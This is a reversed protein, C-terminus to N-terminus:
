NGKEETWVQAAVRNALLTADERAFNINRQIEEKEEPTLPAHTRREFEADREPDRSKEIIVRSSDGREIGFIERWEELSLERGERAIVDDM